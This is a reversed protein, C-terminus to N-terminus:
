GEGPVDAQQDASMTEDVPLSAPFLARLASQWDAAEPAEDAPAEIVWRGNGSRYRGASPTRVPPPTSLWEHALQAAHRVEAVPDDLLPVILEDAGPLRLKGLARVAAAREESAPATLMMRVEPELDTLGLDAAVRLVRSRLSPYRLTALATRCARALSEQDDALGAEAVVVELSQTREGRVFPALWPAVAEWAVAELGDEYLTVAWPYNRQLWGYLALTAEADRAAYSVMAPPLPRRTWDSRQLSKDLRMGFARELMAALGSERQGFISRSVAELDLTHYAVLQRDALVRADAGMGHFLKLIARDALVPQLPTLDALRWADVVFCNGPIALQLLALRHGSGNGERRGVTVFEADIALVEAARLRAAAGALTEPRDVWFRQGTPPPVDAPPVEGRYGHYDAATMAQFSARLRANGTMGV